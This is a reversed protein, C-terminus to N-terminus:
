NIKRKLATGNEKNRRDGGHNPISMSKIFNLVNTECKLSLDKVTQFEIFLWLWWALISAM